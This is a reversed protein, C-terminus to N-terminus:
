IALMAAPPCSAMVWHSQRVVAYVGAALSLVGAIVMAALEGISVGLVSTPMLGYAMLTKALAYEVAFIAIHSYQLENFPMSKAHCADYMYPIFRWGSQCELEDDVELLFQKFYADRQYLDLGMFFHQSGQGAFLFILPPQSNNNILAM